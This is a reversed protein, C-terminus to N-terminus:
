EVFDVFDVKAQFGQGTITEDTSKQTSASEVIQANFELARDSGRSVGKGMAQLELFWSRITEPKPRSRANFGQQADRVRIWGKKKSLNVLKALHTALTDAHAFQIHLAKVQQIYFKTLKVAEVIRAKPVIESPQRGAMIEHIVHLNIALKGIRGETKGWATRMGEFSEEIRLQEIRNYTQCFFKFGAPDLRYTIPPIADVKEYLTAILPTISFSGSDELMQSAALPQIAFIFRAWKGNEDSCDKMFSQLVKPQIGGLIGLLLGQLESRLGDARLVTSGLGDYYSLVDEEDSGRGGRYMNQSKLIGALEDQVYLIGQQPHAQVQSVLGEGNTASIFYVKQRPERPKGNPFAERREDGKLSDYRELDREYQLLAQQYEERARAQLLSLPKYVIAKFPPSKKQSSDAVIAGFLNPSVEFGWDQNLILTTGVKHLTSVVTLLITLYVEPKLNLWGALQCLPIALAAPLVSRIDVSAEVAELLDDIEAATDARNEMCEVENEIIAALQEIASLPCNVQRSLNIFEEKRQSPELSCILIEWVRDHLSVSETNSKVSVASSSKHITRLGLQLKEGRIQRWKWGKICNEIDNPSLSTTKTRSNASKWISEIEGQDIAPTCNLCFQEFLQRPNGEYPQGISSLYDATAILNAVLAYGQANREGKRAGRDIFDRNAKTLCEYIPVADNIPLRFSQEFEHWKVQNTQAATLQRKPITARLQEYSYTKGANLILKSQIPTSGPKIYYAGALRMVRSPNKLKHDGDTFELLDAQLERWQEVSCPTSLAYKTHISKGGTDVQITPKPLGLTKWIDRQLEKDLNDHGKSFQAVKSLMEIQTVVVTSSLTAAAVLLM